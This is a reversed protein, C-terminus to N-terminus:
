QRIKLNRKYSYILAVALLIAWVMLACFQQSFLEFTKGQTLFAQSLGIFSYNLVTNFGKLEASLIPLFTVFFFIMLSYASAQLQTKSLLAITSNLTIFVMTTMLIVVFYTGWSVIEVGGIMPIVLASITSFIIPFAFISLLYEAEGVGSLLLTKLNRKEKEESIVMSSFIGATLAYIMNVSMSLLSVSGRMDPIINLLYADVIPMLGCIILIVKNSLLYRWRLWLLSSFNAM